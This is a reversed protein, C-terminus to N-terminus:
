LTIHLSSPEKAHRISIEVISAALLRESIAGYMFNKGIASDIFIYHTRAILDTDSLVTHLVYWVNASLNIYSYSAAICNALKDAVQSGIMNHRKQSGIHRM